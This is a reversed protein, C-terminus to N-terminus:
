WYDFFLPYGYDDFPGSIC